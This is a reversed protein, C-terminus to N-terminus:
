PLMPNVFCDFHYIWKGGNQYLYIIGDALRDCLKEQTNTAWTHQLEGQSDNDRPRM